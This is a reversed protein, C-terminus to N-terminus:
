SAWPNNAWQPLIHRIEGISSYSCIYVKGTDSAQVTLIFIALIFHLPFLFSYDEWLSYSSVNCVGERKVILLPYTVQFANCKILEKIRDVVFLQGEEDFYGLDGTHLWGQGDITLKTAQPNNYYGSLLIKLYQM